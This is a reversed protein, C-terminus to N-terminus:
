WQVTQKLWLFFNVSLVSAQLETRKDSRAIAEFGLAWLQMVVLKFNPGQIVSAAGFAFGWVDKRVPPLSFARLLRRSAFVIFGLWVAGRPLLRIQTWLTQWMSFTLLTCFCILSCIAITMFPPYLILPKSNNTSACDYYIVTFAITCFSFLSYSPWKKHEYFKATGRYIYFKRYRAPGREGRRLPLRSDFLSRTLGSRGLEARGPATRCRMLGPQRQRPAVGGQSPNQAITVMFTMNSGYKRHGIYLYTKAEQFDNLYHM